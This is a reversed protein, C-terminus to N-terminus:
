QMRNVTTCETRAKVSNTPRCSPCFRCFRLSWVVRKSRRRGDVYAYNQRVEAARRDRHPHARRAEALASLPVGAPKVHVADQRRFVVSLLRASSVRSPVDSARGAAADVSWGADVVVSCVRFTPQVFRTPVIHPNCLVCVCVCM